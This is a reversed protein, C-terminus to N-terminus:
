RDVLVADLEVPVEDDIQQYGLLGLVTRATQNQMIATGDLAVPDANRVRIEDESERTFRVKLPEQQSADGNAVSLMLTETRSEGVPLNELVSPALQTVVTTLETDSLSQMWVPLEGLQELLDTQNLRVPLRLTGDEAIHGNMRKLAHHHPVSEGSSTIETITAEVHSRAPDLQWDAQAAWPLVALGLAVIGAARRGIRKMEYM